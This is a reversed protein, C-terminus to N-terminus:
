KLRYGTTEDEIRVTVLDPHTCREGLLLSYNKPVFGPGENVWKVDVKGMKEPTKDVLTPRGILRKLM